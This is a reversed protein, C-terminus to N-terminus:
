CGNQILTLPVGTKQFAAVQAHLFYGHHKLDAELDDPFAVTACIFCHLRM